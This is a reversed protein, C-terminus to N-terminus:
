AGPGPLGACLADIPLASTNSALITTPPLLSALKAFLSQKATLDEIIAEIILDCKALGGWDTTTRIAASAAEASGSRGHRVVEDFLKAIMGRARNLTPEDIDVLM